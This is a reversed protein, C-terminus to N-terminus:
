RVRPEKKKGKAYEPKVVANDSVFLWHRYPDLWRNRIDGRVGTSIGINFNPYIGQIRKLVHRYVREKAITRKGRVRSGAPKEKHKDNLRFQIAGLVIDVCQLLIHQKSDVESISEPKLEIGANRFEISQTLAALYGKFKARKELTDPLDDFMLRLRTKVAGDGAFCLGFGHKIFQYYLLFFGMERQEMSLHPASFYNQTFMIRIKIKGEAVLDFIEDILEIYKDSYAQSIKQWKVEDNLRLLERRTRIRHEVEAIDASEVILGGYFNAFHKGSIDSEDCYLVLERAM